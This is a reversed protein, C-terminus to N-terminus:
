DDSECQSAPVGFVLRTITKSVSVGNVTYSLRAANGGTFDVGLNLGRVGIAVFSGIILLASVGYWVKRTHMFPFASVKKFFEM